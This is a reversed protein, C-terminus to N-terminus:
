KKGTLVEFGLNKLKQVAAEFDGAVEAERAAKEFGIPFLGKRQPKVITFYPGAVTALGPYGMEYARVATKLDQESPLSRFQSDEGGSKKPHTHILIKHDGDQKLPLQVQQHTGGVKEGDVVGMEYTTDPLNLKRLEGLDAPSIQEGERQLLWERFIM